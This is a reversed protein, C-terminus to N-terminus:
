IIEKGFIQNGDSFLEIKKYELINKRAKKSLSNLPVVIYNPFSSFKGIKLYGGNKGIIIAGIKNEKDKLLKGIACSKTFKPTELNWITSVRYRKINGNEDPILVSRIEEKNDSIFYDKNFKKWTMKGM